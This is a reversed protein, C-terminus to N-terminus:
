LLRGLLRLRWFCRGDLFGAELGDVLDGGHDTGTVPKQLHKGPAPLEVALCVRGPACGDVARQAYAARRQLMRQPLALPVAPLPARLHSPFLSASLVTSDTSSPPRVLLQRDTRDTLVNPHIVFHCNPIM